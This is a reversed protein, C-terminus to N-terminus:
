LRQALITGNVRTLLDHNFISLKITPHTKVKERQDQANYRGTHYSCVVTNFATHLCGIPMDM